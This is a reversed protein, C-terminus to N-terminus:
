ILEWRGRFGRKLALWRCWGLICVRTRRGGLRRLNGRLLAEENGKRGELGGVVMM